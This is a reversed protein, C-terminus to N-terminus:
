GEWATAHIAGGGWPTARGPAEARTASPLSQRERGAPLLAGGAEGLVGGEQAQGTSILSGRAARWRQDASLRDEAM